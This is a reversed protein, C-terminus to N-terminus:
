RFQFDFPVRLNMVTNMIAQKRDRDVALHICDVAEWLVEELDMKINDECKYKPIGLLENGKSRGVLIKHAKIVSCIFGQTGCSHPKDM